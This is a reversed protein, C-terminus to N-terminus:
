TLKDYKFFEEKDVLKIRNDKEMREIVSEFWFSGMYSFRAAFVMLGGKKCAMIMEEFIKFDMHNNNIVGACTVVDFKNMLSMPFDQIEHCDFEELRNYCNKLSAEELMGTSVDIGDIKSFGEQALYKGVLGTGCAM